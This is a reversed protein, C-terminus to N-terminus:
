GHTAPTAGKQAGHGHTGLLHAVAPLGIGAIAGLALAGVAIQGTPFLVSFQQLLVTVGLAAALGSLLGLLTAKVMGGGRLASLATGVLGLGGVVTLGLSVWGAPTSLPSGEVRVIAIGSCSLGAGSSSGTVQYLGVGWFSYDKVNVTRVWSTGSAPGSKVTRGLGMMSIKVQLNSIPKSASMTVPVKADKAVVIAGSASTSSQNKVNVGNISASCPGNITAGAGAALVAAAVVSLFATAAAVTMRSAVM